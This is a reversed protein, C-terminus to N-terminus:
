VVKSSIDVNESSILGDCDSDLLAFAKKYAEFRRREALKESEGSVKKEKRIREARDREEQERHKQNEALLKALDQLYEGIPKREPNRDIKPPRGTKPKFNNNQDASADRQDKRSSQRATSLNKSSVTKQSPIIDPKFTCDPYPELQSLNNQYEQRKKADQFLFTFKNTSTPVNYSFSINKM